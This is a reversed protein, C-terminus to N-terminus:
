SDRPSPSTYLLCIKNQTTLTSSIAFHPYLPIARIMTCGKKKLSTIAKEISPEQYRMAVEIPLSSLEALRLGLEKTNQILPSGKDTWIKSYAEQTKKYRNPVIIWNVLIQQIQKPYDVVLDDSLFEKLYEKISEDELDKPSGLNILLIGKM